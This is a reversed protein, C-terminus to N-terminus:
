EQEEEEAKEALAQEEERIPDPNRRRWLVYLLTVVAAGAAAPAVFIGLFAPLLAGATAADYEIAIAIVVILAIVLAIWYGLLVIRKKKLLAFLAWALLACLLAPVLIGLANKGARSMAPFWAEFWIALRNSLIFDVFLVGLGLFFAYLLSLSQLRGDKTFRFM